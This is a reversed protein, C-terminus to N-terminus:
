QKKLKIYKNIISKNVNGLAVYYLILAVLLSSMVGVIMFVLWSGINLIVGGYITLCILILLTSGFRFDIYKLTNLKTNVIKKFSRVNLIIMLIQSLVLCILLGTLAFTYTLPISFICIFILVGLANLNAEKLKLYMCLFSREIDAICRCTIYIVILFNNLSGVYLDQSSWLGVFTQNFLVVLMLFYSYILVQLFWMEARANLLGIKEENKALPSISTIYSSMFMMIFGSLSMYLYSTISYQSVVETTIFYGLILVDFSRSFVSILKEIMFGISVKVFGLVENFSVKVIKVWKLNECVVFWYSAGTLVVVFLNALVVGILGMNLYLLLYTLAGGLITIFARVGIRKYAMNMGQLVQEYIFFVQTIIFSVVLISSCTRVELFLNEPVKTIFPSIYIIVSGIIIYIPITIISAFFGASIKKNLIDTSSKEREVSLIWKVTTASRFDASAMFETMKNLMELVGFLSTGLFGLTIPKIIFNVIISTFKDIWGTLTNLLIIKSQNSM